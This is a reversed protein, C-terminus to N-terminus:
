KREARESENGPKPILVLCVVPPLRLRDRKHLLELSLGHGFRGWVDASILAWQGVPSPVCCAAIWWNWPWPANAIKETALPLSLTERRGLSTIGQSSEWRYTSELSRLSCFCAVVQERLLTNHSCPIPVPSMYTVTTGQRGRPRRLQFKVGCLNKQLHRLADSLTNALNGHCNKSTTIWCFVHNVCPCTYIYVPTLYEVFRYMHTTPPLSTVTRFLITNNIFLKRNLRM